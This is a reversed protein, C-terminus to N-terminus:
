PKYVGLHGRMIFGYTGRFLCLDFAGYDSHHEDVTISADPTIVIGIEDEELTAVRGSQGVDYGSWMVCSEYVIVMDGPMM